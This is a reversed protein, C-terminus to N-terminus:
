IHIETNKAIYSVLSLQESHFGITFLVVFCFLHM